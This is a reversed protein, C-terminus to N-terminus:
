ETYRLGLSRLLEDGREFDAKEYYPGGCCEPDGCSNDSLFGLMDSAAQQIANLQAVDIDTVTVAPLANIAALAEEVGDASIFNEEIGSANMKNIIKTLAKAADQRSIGDTM